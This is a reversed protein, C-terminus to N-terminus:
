LLLTQYAQVCVLVTKIWHSKNCFINSLQYCNVCWQLTMHINWYIVFLIKYLLFIMSLSVCILFTETNNLPLPVTFDLVSSSLIKDYFIICISMIYFVSARLWPICKKLFQHICWYDMDCHYRYPGHLHNNIDNNVLIYLFVKHRLYTLYYRSYGISITLLCRWHRSHIAFWTINNFKM